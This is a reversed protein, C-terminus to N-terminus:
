SVWKITLLHAENKCSSGVIEISKNKFFSFLVYNRNLQWIILSLLLYSDHTLYAKM